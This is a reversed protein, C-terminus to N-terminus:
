EGSAEISGCEGTKMGMSRYRGDVRRLKLYLFSSTRITDGRAGFGVREGEMREHRSWKATM